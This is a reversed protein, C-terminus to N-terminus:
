GKVSGATLGRVFYRQLTFFVILPVIMAIFGGATLLHWDQGRSGILRVLAQQIIQNEQDSGLFILAVLFDNWVWLFQLIAFAALVPTCLPMILKWFIQYHSAGDLRASEVISKPLTSMYNRLLYVALPMAFGTHALWVALFTGTLDLDGYIRLIPIFAVYIPVVLLAILLAFLLNRGPFSMWAFAYAAFSAAIIPIVTAPISVVFSNLFATGMGQSDLVERYNDLTWDAFPSTVVTWWGTENVADEARFSSILLGFTPIFWLICLITVPVVTFLIYKRRNRIKRGPKIPTAVPLVAEDVLPRATPTTVGM